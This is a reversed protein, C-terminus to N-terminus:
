GIMFFKNIKKGNTQNEIKKAAYQYTVLFPKGMLKDYVLENKTIKQKKLNSIFYFYIYYNSFIFIIKNM